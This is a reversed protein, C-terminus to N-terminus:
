KKAIVLTAKNSGATNLKGDTNKFKIIARPFQVSGILKLRSELTYTIIREEYPELYPFHWKVLTTRKGKIVKFPKPSGISHKEEILETLKSLKERIGVEHLKKSTRNRIFLKMKILSVGEHARVHSHVLSAKKKIVVESRLNFYLYIALIIVILIIFLLRYNNSITIETEEQPDLEITWQIVAKGNAKAVTYDINATTFIREFWNKELAVIKSSKINGNNIAYLNTVTRLFERSKEETVDIDSFSIIEFDEKLSAYTKNKIDIRVELEQAGPKQAPDIDFTIQVTKEQQPLLSEKVVKHFLDSHLVINMDNVNLANRNRIRLKVKLKERPDVQNNFESYLNLSPIYEGSPSDYSKLYIPLYNSWLRDESIANIKFLVNYAKGAKMLVRPKLSVITSKTENPEVASVPQNQMLLWRSDQSFTFTEKHEFNNTISVNFVAYEDPYIEKEISDINVNFYSASVLCVSLILVIFSILLIKTNKLSM